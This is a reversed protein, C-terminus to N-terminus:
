KGEGRGSNGDLRRRRWGANIWIRQVQTLGQTVVRRPVETCGHMVARLSGDSTSGGMITNSNGKEPRRPPLFFIISLSLAVHWASHTYMYNSDTEFLAFTIAGAGAILVGPLMCLYLRKSPFCKRNNHCRVAWSTLTVLLGAGAPVAIVWLSHRDLLVGVILALPGAMQVASNVNLPFQAMAILTVWLSLSSGWFDCIALVSYETMCFEYKEMRDGDCAHYFTSFFMNYFYVVAELYYRRYVALVIAPVFFANSLTLLLLETLQIAESEAERGDTCGYGRWGANCDCASFVIFDSSRIDENCYGKGSCEGDVCSHINVAVTINVAGNQCEEIVESGNVMKYCQVTTAVTWTGEAPYPMYLKASAEGTKVAESSSKLQFANPRDACLDSPPKDLPPLQNHLVLVCVRVDTTQSFVEAKNLSVRTHLTGGIDTIREVLFPLVTVTSNSVVFTTEEVTDNYMRVFQTKFNSGEQFRDLRSMLRCTSDDGSSSPSDDSVCDHSVVGVTVNAEETSMVEVKAYYKVGLLPRTLPQACIEQDINTCNHHIFQGSEHDWLTLRISCPTPQCGSVQLSIKQSSPPVTFGVWVGDGASNQPVAVVAPRGVNLDIHPPPEVTEFSASVNYECDPLLGKQIIHISTDPILAISYWDGGLPFAVKHTVSVNDPKLTLLAPSTISIAEVDCSSDSKIARFHWKAERLGPPLSFRSPTVSAYNYYHEVKQQARWVLAAANDTLWGTAFLFTVHTVTLRFTM